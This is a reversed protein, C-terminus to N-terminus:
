LSASNVTMPKSKIATDDGNPSLCSSAMMRVLALQLEKEEISVSMAFGTSLQRATSSAAVCAAMEWLRFNAVSQGICGTVNIAFGHWHARSAEHITGM